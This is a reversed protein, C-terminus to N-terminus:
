YSGNQIYIWATVVVLFINVSLMSFCNIMCSIGFYVTMAIM